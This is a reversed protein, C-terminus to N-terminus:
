CAARRALAMSADDEEMRSRATVRRNGDLVFSSGPLTSYLETGDRNMLRFALPEKDMALLLKEGGFLITQETEEVVPMKAEVRTREGAFLADRRDNWATTMLVYSAEDMVKDFSVRVRVIEDTVFVVAIDANDTHVLHGGGMREMGTYRSCIDM